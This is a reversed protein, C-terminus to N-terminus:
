QQANRISVDNVSQNVTAQSQTRVNQGRELILSLVIKTIEDGVDKSFELMQSTDTDNAIQDETLDVLEPQKLYEINVDTVTVDSRLEGARIYVSNDLIEFYPRYYKPELFLNDVIGAKVASSMRVAKYGKIQGPLQGCDIDPFQIDAYIICNLLHRYEFGENMGVEEIPIILRTDRHIKKWTRLDDTLQQTAETLEYRRKMYESIGKNFYYLFDELYLTPAEERVLETLIEIYVQRATKHM